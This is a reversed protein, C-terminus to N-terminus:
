HDLLGGLTVASTAVSRSDQLFFRYGVASDITVCASRALFCVGVIYPHVFVRSDSCELKTYDDLGFCWHCSPLLSPAHPFM